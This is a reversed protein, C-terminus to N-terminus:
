LFHWANNISNDGQWRIESESQPCDPKEAACDLLCSECNEYYFFFKRPLRAVSHFLFTDEQSVFRFELSKRLNKQKHNLFWVNGTFIWASSQSKFSRGLFTERREHLLYVSEIEMWMLVRPTSHLRPAFISNSQWEIRNWIQVLSSFHIRRECVLSFLSLSVKMKTRLTAAWENMRRRVRKIRRQAATLQAILDRRMVRELWSATCSCLCSAERRKVDVHSEECEEAECRKSMFFRFSDFSLIFLRSQFVLCMHHTLTIRQLALYIIWDDLKFHRTM